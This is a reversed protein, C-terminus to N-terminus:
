FPVGFPISLAITRNAGDIYATGTNTVLAGSNDPSRPAFRMDTVLLGFANGSALGWLGFLPYNAQSDSMTIDDFTSIAVQNLTLNVTRTTETLQASENGTKKNPNPAYGVQAGLDITVSSGGVQQNSVWLKGDRFPPIALGAPPSPPNADDVASQVDGTLTFEISPVDQGERSSTPLNIKFSSIACGVGNYRRKGVWCSVSLTPPAGTSLLYTLQKPLQWNGAIAAGTTEALLATKTSGAYDRVPSLAARNAGLGSLMMLLGVYIDDTASGSAGLVVNSTDGGAGLAEPAVPVATSTIAEAFGAARLVRGPVWAGAAPPSAGGPGRLLIKGSVSFTKGLVVPGPRHISGTYERIDATLPDITPKLDAVTVLDAVGPAIYTGPTTEVAIGLVTQLSLDAM